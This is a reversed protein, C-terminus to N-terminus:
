FKIIERERCENPCRLDTKGERDPFPRFVRGCGKCKYLPIPATCYIEVTHDM